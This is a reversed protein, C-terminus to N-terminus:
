LVLKMTIRELFYQLNNLDFNNENLMSIIVVPRSRYSVLIQTPPLQRLFEDKAWYPSLFPDKPVCFKFEEVLSKQRDADLFLEAESFRKKSKWLSLKKTLAGVFGAFKQQFTPDNQITKDNESNSEDLNLNDRLVPVRNGDSDTDSDLVYKELFETVYKESTANKNETITNEATKSSDSPQSSLSVNTLTDSTESVPSKHAQLELLDSESVEEFSETDPSLAENGAAINIDSKNIM